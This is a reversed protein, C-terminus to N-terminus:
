NCERLILAESSKDTSIDFDLVSLTLAIKTSSIELLQTERDGSFYGRTVEEFHNHSIIQFDGGPSLKGTESFHFNFNSFTSSKVLTM